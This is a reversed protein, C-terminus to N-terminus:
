RQKSLFDTLSSESIILLGPTALIILLSFSSSFRNTFSLVTELVSQSDRTGQGAVGIIPCVQSDLAEPMDRQLKCGKDGRFMFPFNCKVGKIM